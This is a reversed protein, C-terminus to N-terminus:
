RSCAPSCCRNLFEGAPSLALRLWCECVIVSRPWNVFQGIYGAAGISVTASSVVGIFITIIGTLTSLFRSQFAARAYAAEGASVPFRTSLECLFLSHAGHRARRAPVVLARLARRSRCGRRDFCLHRCRHHYRRWLAGPCASGATCPLRCNWRRNTPWRPLRAPSLLPRKRSTLPSQRLRAV